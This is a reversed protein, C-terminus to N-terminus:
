RNATTISKCRSCRMPRSKRRLPVIELGLGLPKGVAAADVKEDGVVVLAKGFMQAQQCTSADPMEKLSQQKWGSDNKSWFTPQYIASVWYM